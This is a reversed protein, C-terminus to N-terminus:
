VGTYETTYHNMYGDGYFYLYDKDLTREIEVGDKEMVWLEMVSIVLGKIEDTVPHVANYGHFQQHQTVVELITDPFFANDSDVRNLICWVVKEKQETTCAGAEGYVTKSIANIDEECFDFVNNDERLIPVTDEKLVIMTKVNIPRELIKDQLVPTHEEYQKENEIKLEHASWSSLMLILVIVIIVCVIKKM